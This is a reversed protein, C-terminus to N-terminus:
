GESEDTRDEKHPCMLVFACPKQKKGAAVPPKPLVSRVIRAGIDPTTDPRVIYPEASGVSGPLGISQAAGEQVLAITVIATALSLFVILTIVRRIPM